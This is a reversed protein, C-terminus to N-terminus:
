PENMKMNQFVSLRMLFRDANRASWVRLTYDCLIAEAGSLQPNEKNKHLLM